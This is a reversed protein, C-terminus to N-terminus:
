LEVEVMILAFRDTKNSCENAIMQLGRKGSEEVGVTSMNTVM